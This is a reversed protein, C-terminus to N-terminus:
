KPRSEAIIQPGALPPPPPAAAVPLTLAIGNGVVVTLAHPIVEFEWMKQEAFVDMDANAALVGDATVQIKRVQHFQVRPEDVRKGDSISLFYSELDIKSMGHYIALDLLGDDMKANPAALMHNGFLPSNALLVMQADAELIKGHDTTVTVHAGEFAFFKGLNGFLASWRGKEFDQGLPAAVASLGVGATELFYAKRSPESTMIHGIDLQRTTRMALLQCAAPIDLPIGLARALNNMTGLPLIGLATRSGMLEPVVDEITGDGAAVILLPDGRKVAARALKRAVKGSSKLGIEALIGVARLEDVVTELRITGDALCKSKPNLIVYTRELEDNQADAPGDTKAHTAAYQQVLAALKTELAALKHRQNQLKNLARKAKNLRKAHMTRADALTKTYDQKKTASM